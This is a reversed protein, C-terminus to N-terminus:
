LIYIYKYIEFFRNICTDIYIKIIRKDQRNKEYLTQFHM